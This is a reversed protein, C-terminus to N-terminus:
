GDTKDGMILGGKTLWSIGFFTLAVAEVWFVKHAFHVPLIMLSMSILMGIGCVRYIINRVTKRYTMTGKHKTFLFISNYALLCFFIVASANHIIPNLWLPTQFFGARNFIGMATYVGNSDACPFLVILLGFLGSITTIISDQKDYGDYCMLVISATTLIMALIPCVYYTISMSNPFSDLLPYDGFKHAIYYGLLCLWPLIAGLFGTYNRIRKLWLDKSM